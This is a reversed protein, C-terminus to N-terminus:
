TAQRDRGEDVDPLFAYPLLLEEGQFGAEQRLLALTEAEAGSLNADEHRLTESLRILPVATQVACAGHVVGEVEPPIGMSRCVLPRFAYVRCSGDAQLAPCALHEFQKVVGDIDRDPWDDIFPHDTLRVHSASLLRAQEAAEQEIMRRGEHPLFQLGRRIEQRDLITVPFLGVCCHSCGQRCPLEGVLSAKAREFWRATREFLPSAM